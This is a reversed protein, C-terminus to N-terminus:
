ATLEIAKHKTDICQTYDFDFSTNLNLDHGERSLREFDKEELEKVIYKGTKIDVDVLEVYEIHYYCGNPTKRFGSRDRVCMKKINKEKEPLSISKLMQKISKVFDEKNLTSSMYLTEIAKYQELTVERGALQEFEHQMM